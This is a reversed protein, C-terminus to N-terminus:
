ANTLAAAAAAEVFSAVVMIHHSNIQENALLFSKKKLSRM